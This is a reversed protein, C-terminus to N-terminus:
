SLGAPPHEDLERKVDLMLFDPQDGLSRSEAKEPLFHIPEIEGDM